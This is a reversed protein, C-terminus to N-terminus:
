RSLILQPFGVIDNKELAERLVSANYLHADSTSGKGSVDIWMFKYDSTVVALLIISFFGKYNYYDSGRTAPAKCAVHKGDIAGIVHPFNWRRMWNDTIQRWDEDNQPPKLLEERYEDVIAMCVERVVISITNHPVRWGYQMDRYKAGSALHRLTLAVKLGPDLPARWHTTKKTLAPRLREVVEDFMDPPMRMFNQFARPDENRLEVMLCDYLGHEPRRSIWNRVWISRAARRRLRRRRRRDVIYQHAHLAQNMHQQMLMLVLDIRDM